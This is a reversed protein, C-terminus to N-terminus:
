GIISSKLAYAATLLAFCSSIYDWTSKNKKSLKMIGNITGITLFLYGSYNFVSVWFHHNNVSTKIMEIYHKSSEAIGKISEIKINNINKTDLIVDM